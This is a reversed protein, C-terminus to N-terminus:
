SQPNPLQILTHGRPWVALIFRCKLVSLYLQGAGLIETPLFKSTRCTRHRTISYYLLKLIHNQNQFNHVEFKPNEQITSFELSITILYIFVRETLNLQALKWIYRMVIENSNLVIYPFMYVYTKDTTPDHSFRM